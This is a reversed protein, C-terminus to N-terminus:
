FTNSMPNTMFCLQIIVMLTLKHVKAISLANNQSGNQEKVLQIKSMKMATYTNENPFVVKNMSKNIPIQTTGTKQNNAILLKYIDKSPIHPKRSMLDKTISNSYRLIHTYKVKISEALYKELTSFM